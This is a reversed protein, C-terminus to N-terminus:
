IVSGELRSSKGAYKMQTDECMHPNKKRLQPVLVQKTKSGMHERVRTNRLARVYMRM